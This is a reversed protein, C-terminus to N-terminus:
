DYAASLISEITTGRPRIPNGTLPNIGITPRSPITEGRSIRVVLDNVKKLDVGKRIETYHSYVETVSHSIVEAEQPEMDARELQLYLGNLDDIYQNLIDIQRNVEGTTDEATRSQAVFEQRFLQQLRRATSGTFDTAGNVPYATGGWNSAMSADINGNDLLSWYPALEGAYRFRAQITESYSGDEWSRHYVRHRWYNSAKAPSKHSVELDERVAEVAQAWSELRGATYDMDVEVTIRSAEGARTPYVTFNDSSEAAELLPTMLIPDSYEITNEAAKAIEQKLVSPAVQMIIDLVYDFVRTNLFIERNAITSSSSKGRELQRILRRADSIAYDIKDIFDSTYHTEELLNQLYRITDEFEAM